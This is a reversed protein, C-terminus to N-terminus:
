GNSSTETNSEDSKSFSMVVTAVEILSEEKYWPAIFQIGIPLGSPSNGAPVSIAPVGALSPAVTYVDSLYMQLPDKLKEGLKFATTPSTPTALIDVQEFAKEFDSRILRRVKQARGYYAEYYGASLVFTGLMIRRQVELGFGESRTKYYLDRLSSSDARFGYRVGDFRSLNSSAEATAILYYTAVAYDTYPMSIRVTTHGQEELTSIVDEVKLRVEDNLGDGFYEEPIGIRFKRDLNKRNGGFKPVSSASSTADNEDHGSMVELILAVDEISRSLVGIQDLSSGYAIVGYRSVRGYTPKLGIVGTFAAPQRVSGGTDTGLAVPALFASVAAASGGSSGGPVYGPAVPNQTPGFASNETSSGMGFEDCNTKGLIICGADTLRQVATASFPATFGKLIKSGATADMGKCLINDKIAIPIPALPLKRSLSFNDDLHKAAKLAGDLDTFIFANLGAQSEIRNVFSSIIQHATLKGDRFHQRLKTASYRFITNAM